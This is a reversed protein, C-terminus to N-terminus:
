VLSILEQDIKAIDQEIHELKRNLRQRILDDICADKQRSVTVHDEMLSQRESLLRKRKLASLPTVPLLLSPLIEVRQLAQPYITLNDGNLTTFIEGNDRRDFNAGALLLSLIKIILQNVDEASFGYNNIQDRGIFTGATVNGEIETGEVNAEKNM